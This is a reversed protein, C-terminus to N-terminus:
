LDKRPATPRDIRCILRSVTSPHFSDALTSLRGDHRYIWTDDVWGTFRRDDGYVDGGFIIAEGGAADFV